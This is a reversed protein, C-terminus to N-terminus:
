RSYHFTREREEMQMSVESKRSAEKRGDMSESTREIARESGGDGDEVLDLSIGDAEMWRNARESPRESAGGMVMKLRNRLSEM